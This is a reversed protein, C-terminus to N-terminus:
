FDLNISFPTVIVLFQKKKLSPLYDRSAARFLVVEVRLDEFYEPNRQVVVAVIRSCDDLPVCQLRPQTPRKVIKGPKQHDFKEADNVHRTERHLVRRARYQCISIDHTGRSM